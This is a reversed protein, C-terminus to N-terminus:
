STTLHGKALHAEVLLKKTAMVLSRAYNYSSQEDQCFQDLENLNTSKNTFNLFDM